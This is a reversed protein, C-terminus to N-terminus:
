ASKAKLRATLSPAFLPTTAACARIVGVARAGCEKRKEATLPPRMLEAHLEELRRFTEAAGKPATGKPPRRQIQEWWNKVQGPTIPAGNECRIGCM